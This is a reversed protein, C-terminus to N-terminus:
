VSNGAFIGSGVLSGASFLQDVNQGTLPDFAHSDAGTPAEGTWLVSTGDSDPQTLAVLVGANMAPEYAFFSELLTGTAGDFVEVAPGGGPGAGVAIDAKGDANVDAATVYVGGSFTADFAFFSRLLEGTKGDFVEINPGGGAGPGTIIDLTGNGTVDGVAVHVGGTFAPDYAFFSFRLSGDSANYVNVQPGGGPGAAVVFVADGDLTGTALNVGGSFAPNFAFFERILAGTTADFVKIHPGGGPGAAAIIEPEGNVMLVTATVGGTFAPDFAMIQFAAPANGGSVTIVPAGGPGSGTVSVPPSVNQTLPTATSGDTYNNSDSTYIVTIAHSGASLGTTTVSASGASLQVPTGFNVGDIQFQVSGTATGQAGSVTATFTVAQGAIATATSSDVSVTPSALAVNLTNDVETVDYDPDEAGDVVIAYFGIPADSTAITSVTPLTTLSSPTDGNVLGSYTATLPPVASGVIMSQHAATITLPAPMITLTGDVCTIDYDSAVAGSCMIDYTGAHSDAAVTALQLGTVISPTDGNVLGVYSATLTPLTGGYVMSQDDATVALPAPTINLTGDVYVFTYNPDVAGSATITYSGVNSTAAVTSLTPLATLSDVNDGNVFGTFTGTLTPLADGYTMVQNDVTFTLTAPDVTFSQVVEPAPLYNSDGEENAQITVVGVGTITLVDDTLSAPGSITYDVPLGSSSTAALQIPAVGYPQDAIAGFDITQPAPAVSVPVV